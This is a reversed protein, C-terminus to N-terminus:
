QSQLFFILLLNKEPIKLKNKMQFINFGGFLAENSKSRIRAFGDEDVGREYILKSL